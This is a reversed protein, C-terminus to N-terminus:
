YNKNRNFSMLEVLASSSFIIFFPMMPLRFRYNTEVGGATIIFYFLTLLLFFMLWSIKINLQELFAKLLGSYLIILYISSYCFILFVNINGKIWKDWYRFLSLRLLDGMPGNRINKLGLISHYLADGPGILTNVIGTCMIKLFLLPNSKIIGISEKEWKDIKSSWPNKGIFKWISIDGIIMKQAEDLSINLKESMVAPAKFHILNIHKINAFVFRDTEYYNRTSWGGIIFLIPIIYCTLRKIIKLLEMKSQYLFTILGFIMFISLFISVPRVITACSIILGLIAYYYGNNKHYKIIMIGYYIFLTLLFLFLTETLLYFILSISLPEICLLFGGFLAVKESNFIEKIIKYLFYITLINLLIQIMIINLTELGFIMYIAVLFIPYGPTRIVEPIKINDYTRLFKGDSLLLEANEQYQFSDRAM